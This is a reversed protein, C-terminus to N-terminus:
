EAVFDSVHEVHSLGPDVGTRRLAAVHGQLVRWDAFTDVDYWPPLLALCTSAALRGITDRLVTPGGWAIGDFIPPMSRACGILYYGGDTAPGLVVEAHQLDALAQRVYEVPLSPSDAGVLVARDHDTRVHREFFRQMRRGLDGDGQPALQYRPGALEAMAPGADAPAFVLWREADITALRLLTDRLMAEAVQAAFAPSTAAALRTKVQGAIPQKAFIGLINTM